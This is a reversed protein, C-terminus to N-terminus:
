FTAEHQKCHHLHLWFIVEINIVRYWGDNNNHDIIYHNDDYDISEDLRFKFEYKKTNRTADVVFKTIIM